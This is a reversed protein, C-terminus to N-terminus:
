QLTAVFLDQKSGFHKYLMPESCGAAAAIEATSAAHYGRRGFVTRAADLINDRREDGTM